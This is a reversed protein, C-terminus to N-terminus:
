NAAGGSRTTPHTDLAGKSLDDKAREMGEIRLGARRPGMVVTLAMYLLKYRLHQPDALTGRAMHALGSVIRGQEALARGYRFRWHGKARSLGIRRREKSDAVYTGVKELVRLGNLAHDPSSQSKHQGRQVRYYAVSIGPLYAFRAGSWAVRLWYDWDECDALSEDFGGVRDLCTRRSLPAHILIVGEYVMERMLDKARYRSERDWDFLRDPQGDDFWSVQGLVVDVEPHFILYEVQGAVKEPTILDDSDLFQIFKGRAHKLGLNRASATGRNAQYLYRIRDGYARALWERTGDTSGDDVVITECNRYTQALASEIAEGLWKRADYTPIVISVMPGITSNEM